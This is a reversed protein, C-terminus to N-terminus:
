SPGPLGPDAKPAAGLLRCGFAIVLVVDAPTSVVEHEATMEVEIFAPVVQVCRM